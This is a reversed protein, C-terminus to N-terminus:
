FLLQAWTLEGHMGTLLKQSKGVFLSLTVTPLLWPSLIFASGPVSNDDVEMTTLLALGIGVLTSLALRTWHLKRKQRQSLAAILCCIVVVLGISIFFYAQSHILM